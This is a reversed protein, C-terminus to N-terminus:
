STSTTLCSRCPTSGKGAVFIALFDRLNKQNNTLKRITTDVDLWVIDDEPYYDSSRRWNAM